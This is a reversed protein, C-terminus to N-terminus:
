RTLNVIGDKLRAVNFNFLLGSRLGTHKMHTLLQSRDVSTLATASKIEVILQNDVIVDARYSKPLTLDDYHVLIWRETECSLGAKRLEHVLCKRYTSELLGPGLRTHVRM